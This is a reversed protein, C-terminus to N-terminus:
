VSQSPIDDTYTITFQVTFTKDNDKYKVFSDKDVIVTRRDSRSVVIQVVPSSKIFSIADAQEQTLHQSIVRIQNRSIRSTEKRITDAFSGYSNPWEPFINQKTEQTEGIEVQYEKEAQFDWYEFNARYNLWTMYISQASCKCNIVVTKEESIVADATMTIVVDDIDLIM